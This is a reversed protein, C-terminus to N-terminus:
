AWALLWDAPKDLRELMQWKQWVRTIGPNVPFARLHHWAAVNVALVLLCTTVVVAIVHRTTQPKM